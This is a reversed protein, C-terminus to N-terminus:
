KDREEKKIRKVTHKIKGIIFNLELTSETESVALDPMVIDTLAEGFHKMLSSQKEKDTEKHLEVLERKLGRVKAFSEIIAFTVATARESKLITALMYLGKETFAKTTNRNKTSVKTSSIKSRLIGLENNSLIFMYEEPFKDPNNRVAENIRKTEVGYLDAVDADAIVPMQRITVIRREVDQYPIMTKKENNDAQNKMQKTM